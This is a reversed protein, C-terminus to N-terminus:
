VLLAVASVKLVRAELLEPKIRAETVYIVKAEPHHRLFSDVSRRQSLTPQEGSLAVLGIRHGNAGFVLPVYAGSRTRYSDVTFTMGLSYGFQARLNRYLASLIRNEQTLAGDALFFEEFQDELLLTFGRSGSLPIRRILYISELAYILKKQTAEAFGLQRQVEAFRYPRWATKAIFKLFRQLTELSLSTKLLLRLDRDLILDLLSSLAQARLQDNRLFCLGPLGGYILYKEFAACQTPTPIKLLSHINGDFTAYKLLEPLYDPLAERLLEALVLPYVELSVLRGTLSERIAKRSSFRVSGTLVFQGPRKRTRVWEKLAPFLRPAYQCEDIATCSSAVSKLFEKSANEAQSLSDADDFTVYRDAHHAVFTTKGVQRHGFVGVIPSYACLQKYLAEFHRIRFHAMM